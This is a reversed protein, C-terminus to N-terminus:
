SSNVPDVLAAPDYPGFADASWEWANGHTDYLGWPNPLNTAVPHPQDQSNSRCWAFQSLDRPSDGFSFSSDTGARCAWEWEAETPLRYTAREQESLKRCFDVAEKWGIFTAPCKPE